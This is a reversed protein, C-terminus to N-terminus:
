VAPVRRDRLARWHSPVTLVELIVAQFSILAKVLLVASSVSPKIVNSTRKMAVHIASQTARM